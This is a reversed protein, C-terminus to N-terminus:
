FHVVGFAFVQKQKGAPNNVSEMKNHARFPAPGAAHNHVQSRLV